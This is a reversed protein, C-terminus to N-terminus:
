PLLGLADLFERLDEVDYPTDERAVIDAATLRAAAVQEETPPTCYVDDVRLDSGGGGKQKYGGWSKM